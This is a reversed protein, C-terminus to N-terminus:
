REKRVGSILFLSSWGEIVRLFQRFQIRFFNVRKEEREGTEVLRVLQIKLVLKPDFVVM